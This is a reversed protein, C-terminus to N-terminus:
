PMKLAMLSPTITIIMVCILQLLMPFLLKVSSEELRAKASIKSQLWCSGSQIKLLHLNESNGSKGYQAALMLASAIEPIQCRDAFKELSDCSNIGAGLNGKLIGLEHRFEPSSNYFTDICMILSKHLVVGNSLLTTLLGVFSPFDRMMISKNRSIKGKTDMDHLFLISFAMIFFIFIPIKVFFGMIIFGAFMSTLMCLKVFIYEEIALIKYPYLYTLTRKLSLSYDEPLLNTLKNMLNPVVPSYNSLHTFISEFLYSISSKSDFRPKSNSGTNPKSNIGSKTETNRSVKYVSGSVIVISICYGTVALVFALFIIAAGKSSEFAADMYSDVSLKLSWIVFFPMASMITSELRKQSVDSSIDKTILLLESVMNLSQRLIHLNQSGLHRMKAITEFLPSAEPCPLVQALELVSIDFPVGLITKDEFTRLGTCIISNRGHLNELENRADRFSIELSVGISVKACLYELLSKLQERAILTQKSSNFLNMSKYPFVALVVASAIRVPLAPIFPISLLYLVMAIFIYTLLSRYINLRSKKM